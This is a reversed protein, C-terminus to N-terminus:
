HSPCFCACVAEAPSLGSYFYAKLRRVTGDDPQWPVRVFGKGVANEYVASTWARLETEFPFPIAIQNSHTFM